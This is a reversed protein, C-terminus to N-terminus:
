KKAIEILNINIDRIQQKTETKFEHLDDKIEKLISDMAARVVSTIFEQKTLKQHKFYADIVKYWAFLFGILGTLAKILLNIDFPEPTPTALTKTKLYNM